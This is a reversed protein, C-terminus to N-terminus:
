LRDLGKKNEDDVISIYLASTNLDTHGLQNAILAQNKTEAYLRTALTHRLKHPSVEIKFAKSYKGVLNEVSRNDIRKAIGKYKALFLAQEKVDPQYIMQRAELYQEIYVQAFPAIAVVDRKGGKRIVEITLTKLNIHKVDANTCESLRIGTALILAIIALDRIKNKEFYPRAGNSIQDSYEHDIFELFGLSEDGLFLKNKIASARANLTEKSKVTKIKDMVNRYFYPEGDENETERTLFNFLSSLASITRNITTQSLGFQQGNSNAKPRERLYLIYSEVDQKKLHELVTMPISKIEPDPILGSEYLWDFFRHFEKLYEYITNQSRRQVQMSRVYENVYFPMKGQEDSIHKLLLEKNM